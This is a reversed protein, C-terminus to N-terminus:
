GGFRGQKILFFRSGASFLLVGHDLLALLVDVGHVLLVLLELGEQVALGLVVLLADLVEDISMPCSLQLVGEM